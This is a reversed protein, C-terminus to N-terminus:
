GPENSKDYVPKDSYHRKPQVVNDSWNGTGYLADKIAGMVDSWLLGDGPKLVRNVTQFLHLYTEPSKNRPSEFDKIAQVLLQKKNM